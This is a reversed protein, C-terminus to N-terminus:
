LWGAIEGKLGFITSKAADVSEGGTPKVKSSLDLDMFPGIGFHFHQVPHILLPVFIDLTMKNASGLDQGKDKLSVNQYLIGVQPWLSLLPPSLWLNYGVFPGVKITTSGEGDEGKADKTSLSSFGVDAGVSLGEIVFYAVNAELGFKTEKGADNGSLKDSRSEFGLATAAGFNIVGPNGFEKGGKEGGGEAPAAATATATTTTTTTAEGEAYAPLAVMTASVLAVAVLKTNMFADKRLNARTM